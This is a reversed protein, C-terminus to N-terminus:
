FKLVIYDGMDMISGQSPFSQMSNGLTLAEALIESTPGIIEYGLYDFYSILLNNPEEFAWLSWNIVSQSMTFSRPTFHQGDKVVDRVTSQGILKSLKEARRYERTGKTLYVKDLYDRSLQYNGVFAVPKSLDYEESLIQAANKLVRSEEEYRRINMSLWYDCQMAQVLILYGSLIIASYKLFVPSHIDSLYEILIFFLFATYLGFFICTRYIPMNTTNDDWRLIVLTMNVLHLMLFLPILWINKKKITFFLMLVMCVCKSFVYITIPSFWMGSYLYHYRVTYLFKKLNHGTQKFLNIDNQANNKVDTGMHLRMQIILLILKKLILGAILPILFLSGLIIIEKFRVTDKSFIIKIIIVAIAGIVYAVCLSEYWASIFMIIVSAGFLKILGKSDRSSTVILYLSIAVLTMGPGISLGLEYPLLEVYIPASVLICAFISRSAIGNQPVIQDILVCFLIGSLGLFLVRLLNSFQFSQEGFITLLYSVLYGFFRNQSIYGRFNYHNGSLTDVAIATHSIFYSYSLAMTVILPIMFGNNSLYGIIRSGYGIEHNNDTKKM